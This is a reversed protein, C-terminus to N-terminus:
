GEDSALWDRAEDLDRFARISGDEGGRWLEHRRMIAPEFSGLTKVLKREVGGYSLHISRRNGLGCTARELRAPPALRLM